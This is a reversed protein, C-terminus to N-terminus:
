GRRAGDCRDEDSDSQAVSGGVVAQFYRRQLAQNAPLAWTGEDSGFGMIFEAEVINAGESTGVAQMLAAHDELALVREEVTFRAGPRLAGNFSVTTLLIPVAKLCFDHSAGLFLSAAQVIIEVLISNPIFGARPFADDAYDETASLDTVAVVRKGPEFEQIANVLLGQM